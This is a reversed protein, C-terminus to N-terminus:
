KQKEKQMQEIQSVIGQLASNYLEIRTQMQIRAEKLRKTQEEITELVESIKKKVIFGQGVEVFLEKSKLQAPIHVGKGLSSLIEKENSKSLEKLSEHFNEYEQIQQEVMELRQEMEQSEKQLFNAKMLTEQNLEM